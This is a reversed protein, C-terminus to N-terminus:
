KVGLVFLKEQLMSNIIKSRKLVEHKGRNM